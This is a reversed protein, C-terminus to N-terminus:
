RFQPLGKALVSHFQDIHPNIVKIPITSTAVTLLTRTLPRAVTAWPM